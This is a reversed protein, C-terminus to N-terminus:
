FSEFEDDAVARRDAIQRPAAVASTVVPLSNASPRTGPRGSKRAAPRNSQGVNFFSISQAMMEAQSNLEEATAALEESSGATQQVVQELQQISQGIDAIGDRQQRSCEAIGQIRNATEQIDPVLKGIIAGAEESIKVSSASLQSIEGAATQSREALKRVEAAVVAFGKGHEGARAAEIAANLALLNTQRAIEEIISIKSAIEKMANVAENVATGGQAADRSAQLAINQTTNSSDTNLQCSGSIAALAASSTEVSAAQETVGQSLIQSANSIENSGISVQAAATSVEGIVERLRIVMEKLTTALQGIEDKQDLDITATLDGQAISRAFVVGKNLAGTVARTILFAILLSLLVAVVSIIVIEQHVSVIENSVEKEQEASLEAILKDAQRRFGTMEQELKIQTKFLEVIGTMEKQYSEVGAIIKAIQEQNAPHKFTPQLAQAIKLLAAMAEVNRQIQKDDQGRGVIIEKEAIRAERFDALMAGIEITKKVREETQAVRATVVAKDQSDIPQRLLAYVKKEQDEQLARIQMAIVQRALERLRAITEEIKRSTAFFQEMGKDYGDMATVIANMKVKDEAHEFKQDRDFIAQKRVEDIAKQNEQFYKEDKRILLNKEAQMATSLQDVLKGLDINESFRKNVQGVGHYGIGAILLALLLVAGYGLGLKVGFKLNKM